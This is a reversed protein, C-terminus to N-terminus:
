LTRLISFKGPYIMFRDMVFFDGVGFYGHLFIYSFNVSFHTLNWLVGESGPVLILLLSGLYGVSMSWHLNNTPSIIQYVVFIPGSTSLLAPYNVTCM